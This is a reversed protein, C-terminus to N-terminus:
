KANQHQIVSRRGMSSGQQHSSGSVFRLKIIHRTSSGHHSSGFLCQLFSLSSHFNRSLNGSNFADLYGGISYKYYFPICPPLSLEFSLSSQLFRILGYWRTVRQTYSEISNSSTSFNIDNVMTFLMSCWKGQRNIPTSMARVTRERRQSQM